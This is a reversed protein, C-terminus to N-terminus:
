VERGMCEALAQLFEKKAARAIPLVEGDVTVENGRFRSVHALNVITSNRIAAFGRGELQEKVARMTGRTRFEGSETHYIIYHRDSEVYSIESYNIRRMGDSCFVCVSNDANRRCYEVAKQLKTRFLDYEVPKVLFDLASVEYGRIAYKALTTIFILCVNEDQARLRKAAEMGNMHPMAIDMFVIDFRGRYDDIFNAGDSFRECAIAEKTEETYRRIYSLLIQAYETDDEVVAVKIM